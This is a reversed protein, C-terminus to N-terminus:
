DNKQRQSQPAAKALLYGGHSIGILVIMSQDIVPFVWSDELKFDYLQSGIKFAYVMISVITFLLMQLRALDIHAANGTEEGTFMDSFRAKAIDTNIIVLGKNGLTAETDGLKELNRINTKLEEADPIQAAKNELMLPSSLMTTTSIGLLAWLEPSVTIVLNGGGFAQIIAVSLFASLIILTWSLLQFRSLSMVNRNDILVGAFRGTISYGCIAAFGTLLVLTCIWARLYSLPALKYSLFWICLPM